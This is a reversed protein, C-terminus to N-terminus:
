CEWRFDHMGGFKGIYNCLRFRRQYKNILQLKKIIIFAWDEKMKKFIQLDKIKAYGKASHSLPFLSLFFYLSLILALILKVLLFM